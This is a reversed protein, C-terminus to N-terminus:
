HQITKTHFTGRRANFPVTCHRKGLITTINVAIQQHSLSLFLNVQLIYLTASIWPRRQLTHEFYYFFSEFLWSIFFFIIPATM